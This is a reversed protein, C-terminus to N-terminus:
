FAVSDLVLRGAWANGDNVQLGLENIGNTTSPITFTVTNWGPILQQDALVTTNWGSDMWMPSVGVTV